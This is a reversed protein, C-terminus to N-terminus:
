TRPMTAIAAISAIPMPTASPTIPTGSAMGSASNVNKAHKTGIRPAVSAPATHTSTASAALPRV